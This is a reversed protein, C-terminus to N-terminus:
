CHLICCGRQERFILNETAVNKILPITLMLGSMDAFESTCMCHM